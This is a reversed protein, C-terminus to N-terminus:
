STCVVPELPFMTLPFPFANSADAIAPSITM